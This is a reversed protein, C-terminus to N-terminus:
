RKSVNSQCTDLAYRGKRVMQVSDFLFMTTLTDDCRKVLEESDFLNTGLLKSNVGRVIDDLTFEDTQRLIINAVLNELDTNTIVNAREKTKSM